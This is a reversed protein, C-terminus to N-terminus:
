NLLCLIKINITKEKYAVICAYCKTKLKFIYAQLEESKELIKIIKNCSVLPFFFIM